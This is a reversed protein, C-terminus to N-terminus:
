LKLVIKDQNETEPLALSKTKAEMFPGADFANMKGGLRMGVSELLKQAPVTYKGAQGLNDQVSEPLEDLYLPDGPLSNALFSRNDRAMRNAKMYDVRLFPRVVAEYFESTGSSNMPPLLDAFIIEQFRDLHEKAFRIRSFSLARGLKIPLKRYEPDLILGGLESPGHRSIQLQIAPRGDVDRKEWYVHPNEDNGHQAILQGTGIVRGINSDELVFVYDCLKSDLEQAFSQSSRQILSRVAQMDSPLNSSNLSKALRYVDESDKLQAPRIIFQPM